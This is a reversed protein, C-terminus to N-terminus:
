QSNNENIKPLVKNLAYELHLENDIECWNMNEFHEIYVHEKAKSYEAIVVEYDKTLDNGTEEVYSGYRQIFGKTLAWIGTMVGEPVDEGKLEKTLRSLVGSDSEYYVNDDLDLPASTLILNKSRDGLRSLVKPDYLIDSELLYFPGKVLDKFILLTYISAHVDYLPNEVIKVEKYEEELYEFSEIMHGCGIFIEKVDADILAKISYEIIPIGNLPTLPKPFSDGTVSKLRTGKGAALIVATRISM